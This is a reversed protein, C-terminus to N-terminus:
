FLDKADPYFQTQINLRPMHMPLGAADKWRKKLLHWFFTGGQTWDKNMRPREPRMSVDHNAYYGEWWNLYATELQAWFAGAEDFDASFLQHCLQALSRVEDDTYTVNDGQAM